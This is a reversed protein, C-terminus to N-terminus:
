LLNNIKNLDFKESDFDPPLWKNVFWDYKPHNKNKLIKLLEMYGFVGGCDEPPCSREGELCFPLYRDEFDLVNEVIVEHKWDDGFDYVYNFRIGKLNLYKFLKIKRSDEDGEKEPIYDDSPPEINIGDIEFRYLHYGEWGMIDQIIEHFEQFNLDDRVFFRRWILPNIDKLFIKLQLIKAM